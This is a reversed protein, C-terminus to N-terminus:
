QTRKKLDADVYEAILKHIQALADYHRALVGLDEPGESDEEVRKRAARLAEPELVHEVFRLLKLRWFSPMGDIIRQIQQPLNPLPKTGNRAHEALMAAILKDSDIPISGM